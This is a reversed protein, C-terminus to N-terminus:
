IFKGIGAGTVVINYNIIVNHTTRREVLGSQALEDVALDLTERNERSLDRMFVRMDLLYGSKVTGPGGKEELHKFYGAIRAKWEEPTIAAM